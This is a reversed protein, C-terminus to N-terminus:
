SEPDNRVVTLMPSTGIMYVTNKRITRGNPQQLTLTVRYRMDLGARDGESAIQYNTLRCGASWDPDNVRVAPSATRLADPQEGGQWADLVTRLATQAQASDAPAQLSPEGCGALFCAALSLTKKLRNM